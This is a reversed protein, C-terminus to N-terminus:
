VSTPMPDPHLAGVQRSHSKAAPLPHPEATSPPAESFTVDGRVYAIARTVGQIEGLAGLSGNCGGCLAGRVVGTVHDHDIHIAKRKRCIACLGGQSNVIADVQDHTLGYTARFYIDRRKRRDRASPSNRMLRNRCARCFTNKGGGRPAGCHFCTKNKARTGSFFCQRSCYQQPKGRVLPAGFVRGCEPSDCRKQPLALLRAARYCAPSHYKQLTLLGTWRDYRHKARFTKNCNPGVCTAFTAATADTM